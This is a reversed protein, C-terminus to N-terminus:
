ILVKETKHKDQLMKSDKSKVVYVPFLVGCMCEYMHKGWAPYHVPCSIALSLYSGLEDVEIQMDSGQQTFGWGTTM